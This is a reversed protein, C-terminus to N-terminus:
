WVTSGNFGVRSILVGAGAGPYGCSGSQPGMSAPLHLRPILRQRPIVVAVLSHVWQLKIVGADFIEGEAMVVAVLSHVWQLMTTAATCSSRSATYGCSGSQPGMSARFTDLRFHPDVRYGCSGSQPGMSAQLRQPGHGGQDPMVVAVLSHVWQLPSGRTLRTAAASMVVAVLSHVWQLTRCRGWLRTCRPMVVAVLSHVWQLAALDAVGKLNKPM